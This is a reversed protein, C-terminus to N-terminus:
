RRRRRFAGVGVGVGMLALASPSPVVVSYTGLAQATGIDDSTDAPFYINGSSSGNLMDAYEAADLTWTASGSFAQAGATFTVTSDTSFSWMNLGPETTGGRFLTPSLDSPNNASTLDGSVLVASLSSGAGGGYLNEFLIGTFNSGSATVASLGPTATITVQDTVSLDIVLLDDAQAVTALALTAGFCVLGGRISASGRM